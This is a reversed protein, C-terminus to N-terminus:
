GLCGISNWDVIQPRAECVSRGLCRANLESRVADLPNEMATAAGLVDAPRELSAGWATPREPLVM